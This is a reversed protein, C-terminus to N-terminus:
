APRGAWLAGGGATGAALAPRPCSRCCHRRDPRRGPAELGRGGDHGSAADVWLGRGGLSGATGARRPGTRRPILRPTRSSAPRATRSTGGAGRARLVTRDIAAARGWSAWPQMLAGLARGLCGLPAPWTTPITQRRREGTRRTPFRGDVTLVARWTPLAPTPQALVSLRTHITHVHRVIRIVLAQVFLRDPSTPPRGRGRAAPPPVPGRDVLPVLTVLRTEPRIM